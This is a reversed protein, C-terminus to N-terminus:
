ILFFLLLLRHYHLILTIWLLLWISPLLKINETILCYHVEVLKKSVIMAFVLLINLSLDKFSCVDWTLNYKFRWALHKGQLIHRGIRIEDRM